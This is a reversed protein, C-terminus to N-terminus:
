LLEHQNFSNQTRITDTGSCFSMLEATSFEMLKDTQAGDPPPLLFKLVSELDTKSASIEPDRYIESLASSEQERPRFVTRTSQQKHEIVVGPKCRAQQVDGFAKAMRPLAWQAAPWILLTLVM